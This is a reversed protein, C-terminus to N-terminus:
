PRLTIPQSVSGSRSSRSSRSRVRGSTRFIWCRSPWFGCSAPAARRWISAPRTPRDAPPKALQRAQDDAAAQVPDDAQVVGLAEGLPQVGLVLREARVRVEAEDGALLAVLLHGLPDPREQLRVAQLLAGRAAGPGHTRQWRVIQPRVRKCRRRPMHSAGEVGITRESRVSRDSRRGDQSAPDGEARYVNAALSCGPRHNALRDAIRPARDVRNLCRATAPIRDAPVRGAPRSPGRPRMRRSAWSM